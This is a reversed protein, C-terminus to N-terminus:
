LYTCLLLIEPDYIAVTHKVNQLAVLRIGLFSKWKVIRDANYLSESKEVDKDVNRVIKKIKAM